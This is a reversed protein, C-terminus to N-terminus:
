FCIFCKFFALFFFWFFFFSNFNFYWYCIHGVQLKWPSFFYLFFFSLWFSWRRYVMVTGDLLSRPSVKLLVICPYIHGSFPIECTAWLSRVGGMRQCTRWCSKENLYYNIRKKLYYHISKENLYYNIRILYRLRGQHVQYYYFVPTFLVFPGCVCLKIKKLVLCVQWKITNLFFLIVYIGKHTM